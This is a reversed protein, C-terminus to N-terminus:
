GRQRMDVEVDGVGAAHNAQRAWAFLLDSLRNVYKVTRDAVPATHSLAVIRREARRCVTRAVHLRCALEDGAPLIFRHLDPVVACSEDIWRELRQVMEETVATEPQDAFAVGLALECGVLFLERQVDAVREDLAKDRCVSRALGLHSNLEDLTAYAEIRPHDKRVRSGDALSTEGRDGTRTYLHM